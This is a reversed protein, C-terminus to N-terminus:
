RYVSAFYGPLDNLMDGQDMEALTEALAICELIMKGRAEGSQARVSRIDNVIRKLRQAERLHDRAKIWLEKPTLKMLANSRSM